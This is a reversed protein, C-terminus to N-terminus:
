TRKKDSHAEFLAPPIERNIKQWWVHASWRAYQSALFSVKGMIGREDLKSNQLVITSDQYNSFKFDNDAHQRFGKVDINLKKNLFQVQAGLSKQGFSGLASYLNGSLEPQKKYKFDDDNILIAGGVNGSGWLASSSGYVLKVQDTFFVPIM